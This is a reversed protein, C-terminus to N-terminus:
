RGLFKAVLELTGDDLIAEYRDFRQVHRSYTQWRM